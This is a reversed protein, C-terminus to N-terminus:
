AFHDGGSLAAHVRLVHPETRDGSCVAREFFGSEFERIDVDDFEIFGERSLRQAYYTFKAAFVAEVFFFEHFPYVDVASGDGQTVRYACAAVPYEYSENVLEVAIIFVVSESRETDASAHTRSQDDFFDSESVESM